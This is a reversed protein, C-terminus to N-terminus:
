PPWDNRHACEYGKLPVNFEYVSQNFPSTQPDGFSIVRSLKNMGKITNIGASKVREIDAM